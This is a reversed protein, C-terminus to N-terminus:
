PYGFPEDIFRRAAEGIWVAGPMLPKKALGSLEFLFM